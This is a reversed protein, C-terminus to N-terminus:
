LAGDKMSTQKRNRKSTTPAKRPTPSYNLKYSVLSPGFISFKGTGSFAAEADVRSKFIVKARKSKSLVVTESENLPGYRSFIENLNALSPISELNTFNLILATPSYKQSKENVLGALSDTELDLIVADREQKNDSIASMGVIAETEAASAVQPTPIKPEFIMKEEPDSQIIRDTWYSDNIGDFGSIDATELASLLKEEHEGAHKQHNQTKDNELCTSNRFECFMSVTSTLLGSKKMPDKAAMCLISFIEHPPPCEAPVLKESQPKGSCPTLGLLVGTARKGGSKSVSLTSSGDGSKMARCVREGVRLYSNPQLLVKDNPPLLRKRGEVNSNSSISDVHKRKVGSTGTKKSAKRGSKKEGNPLRSSNLSILDSECKEKENPWKDDSSLHKRKRSSGDQPISKRRKSQRTVKSGPLAREMMEPSDRKDGMVTVHFDDEMLGGFEQLDPLQYHGKWRNFALLQAKAIVFELKDTTCKPAEALVKLYRVLEAPLFTAASSVNDRDDRRSSEERIGANSVVHTKINNRAEEILCSCSLGLEVRRSTEKLACDVAHHFAISSSQKEMQSFHIRFPKIKSVENWAFTQDGFYALLYSDKKFYKIANESAASPEFVQGPWWPHSKVKGWVLDSACYEGEMETICEEGRTKPMLLVPKGDYGEANRFNVDSVHECVLNVKGNLDSGEGRTKPILLGPKENDREANRSNVDPVQENIVVTQKGNLGTGEGHLDLNQEGLIKDVGMGNNGIENGSVAGGSLGAGEEQLDLKQKDLINDIGTGKNGFESVSVAEGIVSSKVNLDVLLNSRTEDGFPKFDGEVKEIGFNGDLVRGVLEMVEWSGRGNDGTPREEVRSKRFAGRVGETNVDVNLEVSVGSVKDDMKSDGGEKVDMVRNVDEMQTGGVLGKDEELVRVGDVSCGGGPDGSIEMLTKYEAGGVAEKDKEVRLQYFNILELSLNILQYHLEVNRIFALLFRLSSPMEFSISLPIQHLSAGSTWHHEVRGGCCLM